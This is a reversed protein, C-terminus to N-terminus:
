KDSSSPNLRQLSDLHRRAREAHKEDKRGESVELVKQWTEVARDYWEPRKEYVVGLNNLASVDDADIELLRVYNDIVKQYDGNKLHEVADRGLKEMERKLESNEPANSSRPAIADAGYPTFAAETNFRNQSQDPTERWLAFEHKELKSRITEAEAGSKIDFISDLKSIQLVDMVRENPALFDLRTRNRNAAMKLGVMTGWGASDVYDLEGIYLHYQDVNPGLLAHLRKRAADSTELVLRGRLVVLLEIGSQYADILLSPSSDPTKM